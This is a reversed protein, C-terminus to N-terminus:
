PAEEHLSVLQPLGWECDLAEAWRELVTLHPTRVGRMASNVHSASMRSRRGLEAQSIDEAQLKQKIERMMAEALRSM